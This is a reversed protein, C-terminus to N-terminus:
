QAADYVCQGDVFTSAVATEPLSWPENWDVASELMIFDAVRGAAIDGRWTETILATGGGGWPASIMRTGTRQLNVKAGRELLMVAVDFHKDSGSSCAIM